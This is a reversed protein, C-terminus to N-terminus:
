ARGLCFFPFALSLNLPPRPGEKQKGLDVLRDMREMKLCAKSAAIIRQDWKCTTPDVMHSTPISKLLLLYMLTDHFSSQRFGQLSTLIEHTVLKQRVNLDM